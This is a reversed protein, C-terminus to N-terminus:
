GRRARPILGLLGLLGVVGWPFSKKQEPVPAMDNEDVPIATTTTATTTNVDTTTTTSGVANLDTANADVENAAPEGSSNATAADNQAMGPAAALLASAAIALTTTMRM